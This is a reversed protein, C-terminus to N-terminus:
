QFMPDRQRRSWIAEEMAEELSGSGSVGAGSAMKLAYRAYRMADMLHDNFKVPEDIVREEGGSRLKQVKYSYAQIEKVLNDGGALIHLKRGKCYDIGAKVDRCNSPVPVVNWGRRGLNEIAEPNSPDAFIEVGREIGAGEMWEALDDLTMMRRYLKEQIYDEDDELWYAVLAMENNYGWDLGYCDPVGNSMRVRMPGSNGDMVVWNKYIVHELRGPEGRAYILWSNYNEDRLRELSAIYEGDLFPNNRYTSQMVSITKDWKMADVVKRMCWHFADIPNFSLIIQNPVAGQRSMRVKLQLYDEYDLRTAEEVWIRNYETSKLKEPDDLGRFQIESNQIRINLFTQHEEYPIGYDKLMELMPKWAADIISHRTKMVILDRLGEEGYRVAGDVMWQRISYSKGSRGGGYLVMTRKKEMQGRNLFDWFKKLRVILLRDGEREVSVIKGDAGRKL